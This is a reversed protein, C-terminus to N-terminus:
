NEPEKSLELDKAQDSTKPLEGCYVRNNMLLLEIDEPNAILLKKFGNPLVHRTNADQKHGIFMKEPQRGRFRRRTSCDIGRIARHSNPNVRKYEHAQFRGPIKTIKKTIKRRNLPTPAMTNIYLLIIGM